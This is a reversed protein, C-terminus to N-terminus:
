FVKKSVWARIELRFQEFKFKSGIYEGDVFDNRFDFQQNFILDFNSLRNQKDEPILSRYTTSTDAQKLQAFGTGLIGILFFTIFIIKIKMVNQNTNIM